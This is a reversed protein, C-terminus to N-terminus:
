GDNLDDSSEDYHLRGYLPQSFNLEVSHQSPNVAENSLDNASFDLTPLSVASWDIPPLNIIALEAVSNIM